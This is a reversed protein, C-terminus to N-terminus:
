DHQREGGSESGRRGRRGDGDRRSSRRGAGDPFVEDRTEASELLQEAPVGTLAEFRVATRDDPTVTISPWAGRVCPVVM